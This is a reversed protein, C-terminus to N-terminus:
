FLKEFFGCLVKNLGFYIFIRWNFLKELVGNMGDKVWRYSKKVVM